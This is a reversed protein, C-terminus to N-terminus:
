TIGEEKTKTNDKEITARFREDEGFYDLLKKIM